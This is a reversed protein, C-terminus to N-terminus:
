ICEDAFHAERLVGCALCITLGAIHAIFLNGACALAGLHAMIKIQLPEKQKPRHARRVLMCPAVVEDDLTLNMRLRNQMWRLNSAVGKAGTPMNRSICEFFSAVLLPPPDWVWEARARSADSFRVFTKWRRLTSIKNPIFEKQHKALRRLMGKKFAGRADASINKM